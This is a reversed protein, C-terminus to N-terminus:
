TKKICTHLAGLLDCLMDLVEKHGRWEIGTWQKILTKTDSVEEPSNYKQKLAYWVQCCSQIYM